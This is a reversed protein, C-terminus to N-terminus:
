KAKPKYVSTDTYGTAGLDGYLYGMLQKGDAYQMKNVPESHRFKQALDENAVYLQGFSVLDAHGKQIAENGSEQTFGHNTIYTNKFKRKFMERFSKHEKSDFFEKRLKADRADLSFGESLEVFAVNKENLKTIMHETLAIPDSDKMGNYDNVPSLKIGVRNNGFVDILQDLVQM